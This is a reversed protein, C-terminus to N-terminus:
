RAREARRRKKRRPPNTGEKVAAEVLGIMWVLTETADGSSLQWDRVLREYGGVSWLVDLAGAVMKQEDGTWGGARQAVADLLASHQRRYADALTEDLAQPPAMPFSSVHDFIRRTVDAVDELGMGDLDVGVGKEEEHMVADRLGRENTFHRYVTRENVGARDAVARITLSDWDRIPSGRLLDLGATLIAQRTEAAREQRLSSDYRRRTRTTAEIM